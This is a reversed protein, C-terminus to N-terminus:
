SIPQKEKNDNFTIMLDIIYKKRSNKLFYKLTSVHFSILFLRKFNDM